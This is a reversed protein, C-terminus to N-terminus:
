KWTAPRILSLIPVLVMLYFGYGLDLLMVWPHLDQEGVAIRSKGFIAFQTIGRTLLASLILMADTLVVGTVIAAWTFGYSLTWMGLIWKDSSRYRWGTSLHRRKQRWWAGWSAPPSTRMWTNHSWVPVVRHESQLSQIFLDDNGGALDQHSSYGGVQQFVTRYLGMNRGVAMYPAGVAAASLYLQATQWTEYRVFCDLWRKGRTMPSYGIVVDGQQFAQAMGSIWDKSQPWCDADTCLIHDHQAKAIAATLAAKKGTTGQPLTAVKLHPHEQQLAQLVTQTDDESHDDIVWVEFHPYHQSLLAPLNKRLNTAENKAAILVSVPPQFSPAAKGTPFSWLYRFRRWVFAMLIGWGIVLM